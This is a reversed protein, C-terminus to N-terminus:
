AVMATAPVSASATSPAVNTADMVEARSTNKMVAAHRVDRSRLARSAAALEQRAAELLANSRLCSGSPEYRITRRTREDRAEKEPESAVGARRRLWSPRRSIASSPTAISLPSRTPQASGLHASRVQGRGGLLGEIPCRVRVVAGPLTAELRVM